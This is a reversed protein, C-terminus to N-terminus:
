EPMGLSTGLALLRAAAVALFEALEGELTEIAQPVHVSSCQLQAQLHAAVEAMRKAGMMGASGKLTHLTDIRLDDEQGRLQDIFAAANEVFKRYVAAVAAPEVLSELLDHFVHDDLVEL